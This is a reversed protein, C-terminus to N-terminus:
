SVTLDQYVWPVRVPIIYFKGREPDRGGSGINAARYSVEGTVGRFVNAIDKGLQRAVDTGWGLPVMIDVMFVGSEGWAGGGLEIPEMVDSYADVALWISNPREFPENPWEIEYGLAAAQMRARADNFPAPSSM